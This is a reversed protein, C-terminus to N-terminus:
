HQQLLIQARQAKDQCEAYQQHQQEIKAATLLNEIQSIQNKELQARSEGLLTSVNKISKNCAAELPEDKKVMRKCASANLAIFLCLSLGTITTLRM